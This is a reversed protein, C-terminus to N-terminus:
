HVHCVPETKNLLLNMLLASAENKVKPIETQHLMEM